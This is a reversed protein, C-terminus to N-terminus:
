EFEVLHFIFSYNPDGLGRRPIICNLRFEILTELRLLDVLQPQATGLEPSALSCLGANGLLFILHAEM